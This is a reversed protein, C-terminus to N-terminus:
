IESATGSRLTAISKILRSLGQLFLLGMAAPIVGKILFRAPLGGPDPSIEGILYAVGAYAFGYYALMLTWPLLFLVSGLLDLWAKDEAKYRAYFLDVRVHRDHKFAYGAGLLFVIAFLHWQLEMVWAATDNFLYRGVVDGCVLLVLVTNLWSVGQGIRENLQDIRAAIGLWFKM